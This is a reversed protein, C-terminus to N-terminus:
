FVHVYRLFWSDGKARLTVGGSDQAIFRQPPLVFEHTFLSIKVQELIDEVQNIQCFIHMTDPIHPPNNASCAGRQRSLLAHMSQNISEGPVALLM